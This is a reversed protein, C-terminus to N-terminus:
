LSPSLLPLWLSGPRMPHSSCVAWLKRVLLRRAVMCTYTCAPQPASGEWVFPQQWRHSSCLLTAAKRSGRGGGAQQSLATSTQMLEDKFSSAQLKAPMHKMNRIRTATAERQMSMNATHGHPAKQRLAQVDQRAAHMCTSAEPHVKRCQLHLLRPRVCCMQMRAKAQRSGPALAGLQHGSTAAPQSAAPCPVCRTRVVCLLCFGM